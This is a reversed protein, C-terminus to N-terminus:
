ATSLWHAVHLAVERRDRRLQAARARAPHGGLEAIVDVVRDRVLDRRADVGALRRADREISKTRCGVDDRGPARLGSGPPRSGPPARREDGERNGGRRSEPEDLM